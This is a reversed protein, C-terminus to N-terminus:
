FTWVYIILADNAYGFLSKKLFTYFLENFRLKIPSNADKYGESLSSVLITM